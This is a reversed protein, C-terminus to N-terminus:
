QSVSAITIENEFGDFPAMRTIQNSPFITAAIKKSPNMTDMGQQNQLWKGDNLPSHVTKSNNGDHKGRKAANTIRQGNSSWGM